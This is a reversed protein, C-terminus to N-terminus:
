RERRGDSNEGVANRALFIAKEFDGRVKALTAKARKIPAGSSVMVIALKVDGNAKTLAKRSSTYDVGAVESVIRIARRRLKMSKPQLDIMLGRWVRGLRIMSTTSITNLVMKQATGCKMRSSGNVVEPGVRLVVTENARRAMESCPNCTIGFVRAGTNRARLMVALVFPTRGSASLGILVDRKSFGRRDLEEWAAREDDEAHEISRRLAKWGGAIIAQFKSAPLGFTPPMEAADLVGLRGSTGAGVYFVRGGARLTETVVDVIRAIGRAQKSVALPVKLDEENILRVIELSTMMHIGKSKPNRKETAELYMRATLGLEKESLTGSAKTYIDFHV